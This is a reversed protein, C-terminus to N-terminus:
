SQKNYEKVTSSNGGSKGIKQKKRQKMGQREERTFLEAMHTNWTKIPRGICKKGTTEWVIKAESEQFSYIVLNFFQWSKRHKQFGCM